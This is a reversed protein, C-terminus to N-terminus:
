HGPLRTLLRILIQQQFCPLLVPSIAENVIMDNVYLAMGNGNILDSVPGLYIDIRSKSGDKLMFGITSGYFQDSSPVFIRVNENSPVNELIYNGYKDTTDVLGGGVAAVVTSDVVNGSTDYVTGYVTAGQGILNIDTILTTDDSVGIILSDTCFGIGSKACILKIRTSKPVHDLIFQGMVDTLTSIPYGALAVGAGPVPTSNYVVRGALIYYAYSLKVTDDLTDDVGQDLTILYTSDDEYYRHTFRLTYTGALVNGITFQGNAKSLGPVASDANVSVLVDKIPKNWMDYVYGTITGKPKLDDSIDPGAPDKTCTIFLLAILSVTPFLLTSLKM